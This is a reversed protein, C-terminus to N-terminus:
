CLSHGSQLLIEIRSQGFLSGRDGVYAVAPRNDTDATIGCPVQQGFQAAEIQVRAAELWTAAYLGFQPTKIDDQVGAVLRMTALYTVVYAFMAPATEAVLRDKGMRRALLAQGLVNNIKHSGTHNLDERKLLIRAGHAAEAGLRSAETM